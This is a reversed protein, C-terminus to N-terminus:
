GVHVCGRFAHETQDADIHQEHNPPLGSKSIIGNNYGRHREFTDKFAACQAM